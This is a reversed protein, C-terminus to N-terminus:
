LNNTFLAASLLTMELFAAEPTAQGWPCPVPGGALLQSISRRGGTLDAAAVHSTIEPCIRSRLAGLHQLLAM